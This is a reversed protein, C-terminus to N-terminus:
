NLVHSQALQLCKLKECRVDAKSHLASNVSLVKRMEHTKQAKKSHTVNERSKVQQNRLFGLPDYKEAILQATYTSIFDFFSKIIIGEAWM